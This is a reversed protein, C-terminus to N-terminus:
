AGRERPRQYFPIASEIDLDLSGHRDRVRGELLYPGPTTFAAGFRAYARPSLQAEVLGHEDELTVYQTAAGDTVPVRRTAAIIAAFSVRAGRHEYLRTSPVCGLREADARLVRMPHESVHMQLYRLENQIRRLSRERAARASAHALPAQRARSVLASLPEAGGAVARALVAEHVSPYDSSSAGLLEDCAGTRLLAALEPPRPRVRTAFDDFSDFARREREELLRRCTNGGLSRVRGLGIRISRRAPDAADAEVRCELCSRTISPLQLVIGQRVLDAAIVRLPYAGAHHDLLACGHELPAHTALFASCFALRAQSMAHAKSFSYCAFRVLASWWRGAALEPIGRSVGRRVFREGVRGLWRADDARAQLEVRLAEAAEISIGTVSALVFLIDEDYILLGQTAALRRAISRLPSDAGETPAASSGLSRAAQRARDIFAEKAQGSAPGPRVIALADALSQLSDVPLRALVARMLPSELQYCGITAARNIREFTAGDALPIDEVQRIHAADDGTTSAALTVDIEDLCHNGLLDVKMLGLQALSEADCQAVVVGSSSRELAVWDMLNERGLVIGGPHAAIHRPMGILREVMGLQARWPAALAEGRVAHGADLLEDAPLDRMFQAIREPEAGLAALGLRYASRQRFAQVSALRATRDAGRRAIFREMLADRRRSAVDLDIDPPTRRSHSVFREFFLGQAIPDIPSLGLVHGVLSSVASGRAAVLVGSHRADAVLAALSLFPECLGLRASVALEAELRAAYDARQPRSEGFRAHVGAECLAKLERVVDQRDPPPKAQGLLDLQCSEALVRAERLAEPLDAFIARLEAATRLESGPAAPWRQRRAVRSRHCVAAVVDSLQQDRADLRHVDLAAVAAVGFRRAAALLAAESSPQGHRVVLARLAGSGLARGLTCLTADDDTLLFADTALGGLADLSHPEDALSTCRATVLRCLQAYGRANKVLVLLRSLASGHGAFPGWLEVGTIPALGHARCAAHFQVHGRVNEMDVLGISSHGLRGAHQVLEVPSAAGMGISFHSKALPLAFDTM